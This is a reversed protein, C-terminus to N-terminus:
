TPMDDQPVGVGALHSVKERLAENVVFPQRAM